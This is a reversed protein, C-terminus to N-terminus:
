GWFDLAPQKNNNEQDDNYKRYAICEKLFTTCLLRFLNNRMGVQFM